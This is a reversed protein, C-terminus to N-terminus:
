QLSAGFWTGLESAVSLAVGGIGTSQLEVRILDDRIVDIEGSANISFTGSTPTNYPRDVFAVANGARIRSMVVRLVSISLVGTAELTMRLEAVGPQLARIDGSLLEFNLPTVLASVADIDLKTLVASTSFAANRYARIAPKRGRGHLM